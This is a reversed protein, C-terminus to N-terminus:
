DPPLQLSVRRGDAAAAHAAEIILLGHLAALPSVPPPRNDRVAAAVARYFAPYDGALSHLRGHFQLDHQQYALEGAASEPERGWSDDLPRRGARLEAEQPDLGFKRFSGHTGHLEFRPRPLRALMSASLTVTLREYHLTLRFEDDAQAGDRLTSITADLAQPTGFLQLAQDILHPGLDHLIGSGPLPQERWAGPRLAPRFRDFASAFSVPRGLTGAALLTRLTLFDGDWRRNHFPILLRGAATAADILARAEASTVALPKDVVVHKGAALAAHALAAHLQNPVALVVLELQPDALLADPELFRRSQPYDHAAASGSSAIAALQLAPCSSILPAHFVRGAMGYGILGTRVPDV